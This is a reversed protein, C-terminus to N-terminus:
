EFNLVNLMSHLIYCISSIDRNLFVGLLWLLLTIIFPICSFVVEGRGYVVPTRVWFWCRKEERERRRGSWGQSGRIYYALIRAGVWLLWEWYKKGPSQWSSGLPEGAIWIFVWACLLSPTFSNIAEGQRCRLECLCHACLLLLYKWTGIGEAELTLCYPKSCRVLSWIIHRRSLVAGERSWLAGCPCREQRNRPRAWLNISSPWSCARTLDEGRNNM